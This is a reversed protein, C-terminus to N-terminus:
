LPEVDVSGTALDLGLSQEVMFSGHIGAAVVNVLHRDLDSVAPVRVSVGVGRNIVGDAHGDRDGVDVLGGPNSEDTRSRTTTSFVAALVFM